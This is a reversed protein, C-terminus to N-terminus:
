KVLTFEVELKVPQGSIVTDFGPASYVLNSKDLKIIKYTSPGTNTVVSVSKGDKAIDYTFPVPSGTLAIVGTCLSGANDCDNFTLTANNYGLQQLDLTFGFVTAKTYRWEGKLKNYTLKEKSCAAALLLSAAVFSLVITKGIKM